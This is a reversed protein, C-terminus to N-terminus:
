RGNFTKLAADNGYPALFVAPGEYAMIEENTCRIYIVVPSSQYWFASGRIPTSVFVTGFSIQGRHAVATAIPIFSSGVPHFTYTIQGESSVFQGSFISPIIGRVSM